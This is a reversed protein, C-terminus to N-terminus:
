DINEVKQYNLPIVGEVMEGNKIYQEIIEDARTENVFGFVVPDNGPITVEITPEAYCYGMCGTKSVIANIGRKELHESMLDFIKKAGAANSCTAIAVKVIVFSDPNTKDALLSMNKTYEGALAKLDAISNIKAM